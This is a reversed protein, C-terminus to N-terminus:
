SWSGSAASLLESKAEDRRSFFLEFWRKEKSEETQILDLVIEGSEAKFRVEAFSCAYLAERRGDPRVEFREVMLLGCEKLESIKRYLTSQPLGLEKEVEAAAKPKAMVAIIIKRSESDALGAIMMEKLHGAVRVM